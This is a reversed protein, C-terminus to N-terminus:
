ENDPTHKNRLKKNLAEVIDAESKNNRELIDMLEPMQLLEDFTKHKVQRPSRLKKVNQETILDFQELKKTIKIANEHGVGFKKIKGTAFTDQSIAALIAEALAEDFLDAPADPEIIVETFDAGQPTKGEQSHLQYENPIDFEIEKLLRKIGSEPMIREDKDDTETILYHFEDIICVISPLKDLARRNKRYLSRRYEMEANLELIAALGEETDEIVTHALLIPLKNFLYLSSKGFGMAIVYVDGTRHKYAISMLLCELASSKGSRTVGAMLLHPFSEIDVIKTNGMEDHGITYPIKAKSEKFERSNLMKTLTDEYILKKSAVIKISTGDKVPIFYEYNLLLQINGARKFIHGYETGATLQVDYIFRDEKVEIETIRILVKYRAYYRLINRGVKVAEVNRREAGKLKVDM